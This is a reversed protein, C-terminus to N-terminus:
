KFLGALLNAAETLLFAALAGGGAYLWAKKRESEYLGKWQEATAQAAAAKGREEAVAAQVALPVAKEIAAQAAAESAAKIAAM